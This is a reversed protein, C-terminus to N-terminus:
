LYYQSQHDNQTQKVKVTRTSLCLLLGKEFVTKRRLTTCDDHEWLCKFMMSIIKNPWIPSLQKSGKNQHLWQLSSDQVAKTFNILELYSMIGAEKNLYTNKTEVELM